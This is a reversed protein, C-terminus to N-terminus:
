KEDAPTLAWEISERVKKDYTVWLADKLCKKAQPLTQSLNGLSSIVWERTEIDSMKGCLKEVADDSLRNNKGLAQIASIRVFSSKDDISSVLVPTAEDPFPKIEGLATAAQARVIYSESSICKILSPISPKGIKALAFSAEWPMVYEEDISNDSMMKIMEPDSLADILIPISAKGKEVLLEASKKRILDDHSVIGKRLDIVFEDSYSEYSFLILFIIIITKM